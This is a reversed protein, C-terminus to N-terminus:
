KKIPEVYLLLGNVKSVKVRQGESLMHASRADWIEGQVRVAIQENMVSLVTGEAGILAERGSVIAKKYSRIALTLIIFFFIATVASMLFILTWDLQYSADHVDFLMISGILFAIVGGIGIVGFSSVVVEFIMFGIGILILLLGVYNIPMLQFAYLVLLLAIIGAVGPLVAGPNSLEFFIGYIAILMLIYAINPNTLFQLFQYRWDPQMNEITMNKTDLKETKGKITVAHGDIKNLLEPYSDAIMDTVKLKQAENASISAASKVAQEAWDANRDRLQALSRIYASADNSAKKESASAEKNKETQSSLLDVPSAAGINTGPAMANIHSAYMIFTGASAARAGAPAVYTLIPIPSAIIAANIGRMSTELGGPTNLQIIILSAKEKEAFAIGREIYDQSAPGIAGSLDLLIAKGAAHSLPSFLIALLSALWLWKRM